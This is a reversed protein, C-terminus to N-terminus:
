GLTHTRLIFSSIQFAAVINTTASGLRKEMPGLLNSFNPMSPLFEVQRTIMDRVFAIAHSLTMSKFSRCRWKGRRTISKERSGAHHFHKGGPTLPHRLHALSPATQQLYALTTTCRDTAM